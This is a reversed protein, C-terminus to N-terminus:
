PLKVKICALKVSKYRISLERSYYKSNFMMMLLILMMVGVAAIQPYNKKILDDIGV